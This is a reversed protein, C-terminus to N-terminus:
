FCCCALLLHHCLCLIPNFSLHWIADSAGRVSKTPISFISGLFRALTGHLSVQTILVVWCSDVMAAITETDTEETPAEGIQM